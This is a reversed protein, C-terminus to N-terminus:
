NNILDYFGVNHVVSSGVSDLNAPLVHPLLIIPPDVKKKTRRDFSQVLVASVARTSDNIGVYDLSKDLYKTFSSHYCADDQDDVDNVDDTSGEKSSSAGKVLEFGRFSFSTANVYENPIVLRISIRRTAWFFPVTLCFRSVSARFYPVGPPHSTRYEEEAGTETFILSMVYLQLRANM